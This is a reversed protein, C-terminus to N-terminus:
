FKFYQDRQETTMLYAGFRALSDSDTIGRLREIQARDRAFEAVQICARIARGVMLAPYSVRNYAATRMFRREQESLEGHRELMELYERGYPVVSAANNWRIYEERSANLFQLYLVGLNAPEM